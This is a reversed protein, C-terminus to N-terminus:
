ASVVGLRRLHPLRQSQFGSHLKALDALNEEASALLQGNRRLVKGRESLISWAFNLPERGEKEALLFLRDIMDVVLGQGLSPAALQRIDHSFRNRDLVVANFRACAARRAENDQDAPGAPAIAGLGALAVVARLLQPFPANTLSALHDLTQPKDALADLIPNALGEVMDVQSAPSLAQQPAEARPLALGVRTARLMAEYETPPLRRAGKVFIDRRFRRYSLFDSLTQRFLPNKEEELFAQARPPMDWDPLHDLLTASGAFTLKAASFERAVDAHYFPTWDRNLYEHAIYSDNKQDLGALHGVASPVQAFYGTELSALNRAFHLAQDIRQGLPGQTTASHELLLQRIPAHAAWGPLCNYSVYVIGGPKLRRHIIDILIKRNEASVWTWVGHLTIVDLDPTAEDATREAFEAFSDDLFVANTTGSDEALQRAGAMHSPLFDVALFHADPYLAALLNSTLGQGCGLECFRFNGQLATPPRIGSLTLAFALHAPSMEPHYSHAYDIETVYGETWDPPPWDTNRWNPNRWNPNQM